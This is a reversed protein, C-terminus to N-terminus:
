LGYGILGNVLLAWIVAAIVGVVLIVLLPTEWAERRRAASESPAAPL